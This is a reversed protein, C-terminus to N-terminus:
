HVPPAPENKKEKKRRKLEKRMGDALRQLQAADRQARDARQQTAKANAALSEDSHDAYPRNSM